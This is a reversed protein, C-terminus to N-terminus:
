FLQNGYTAYINQQDFLIPEKPWQNYLFNNEHQCYKSNSYNDTFETQSLVADFTTSTIGGPNYNELKPVLQPTNMPKHYSTYDETYYGLDNPQSVSLLFDQQITLSSYDIVPVCPDYCEKIVPEQQKCQYNMSDYNHNNNYFDYFSQEALNITNRDPPTQTYYESPMVTGQSMSLSPFSPSCDLPWDALSPSYSLSSANSATRAKPRNMPSLGPTKQTKLVKKPTTQQNLQPNKKKYPGRKFGKKREKRPSNICTDTIGLKICRQCPRGEDCKKCAKQCNVCANKVQSRRKNNAKTTPISPYPELSEFNDPLYLNEQYSNTAYSSSPSQNYDFTSDM